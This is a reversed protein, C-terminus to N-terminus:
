AAEGRALTREVDVPEITALMEPTRTPRRMVRSAQAERTREWLTRMARGNGFAKQAISQIVQEQILERSISPISRGTHFGLSLRRVTAVWENNHRLMDISHLEDFAQLGTAIGEALDFVDGVSIYSFLSPRDQGSSRQLLGFEQSDGLNEFGLVLATDDPSFDSSRRHVFLSGIPWSAYAGDEYAVHFTASMLNLERSGVPYILLFRSRRTSEGFSESYHPFIGESLRNRDRVELVTGDDFRISM